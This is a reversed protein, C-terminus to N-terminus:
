GQRDEDVVSSRARGCQPRVTGTEFCHMIIHLLEKM